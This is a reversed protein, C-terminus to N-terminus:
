DAYVDLRPSLKEVDRSDEDDETEEMEEEAERSEEEKEGEGIGGDWSDLEEWGM